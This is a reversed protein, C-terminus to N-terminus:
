SEGGSVAPRLGVMPYGHRRWAHYGGALPRVREIGRRRLLLAVRASSAESPCTCYLVIEEGRPIERHRQELEETTLHLAGPIVAPEAEFDVQDRVDVILMREGHDLKQKLEEPTIRSMRIRRLFRQRGVFKYGVYGAAAVIGLGLAWGGLRAIGHAILELQDSFLWGVTVFAGAWFFAGLLSCALFEAPRIRVIGALPPAVTSLGPVFKAFLLARAGHTGFLGQTRRVCSDPELSLRCLWGLVRPGCARGLGYWVTDGILSAVAALTLVLLLNLHGKGVLGGAALLFPESPFPLGIQEALVTGFVVAYGYRILVEIADM